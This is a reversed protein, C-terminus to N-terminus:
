TATPNNTIKKRKWVDFAYKGFFFAFVGGLLIFHLTHGGGSTSPTAIGSDGGKDVRIDWSLTFSEFDGAQKPAGHARVTYIGRETFTYQFLPSELGSAGSLSTSYVEQTGKLITATCECKEVFFKNQKDKFEFFFTAPKGVEPDDAPDVHLVAGISVDTKLTHAAAALPLSALLVLISIFLKKM